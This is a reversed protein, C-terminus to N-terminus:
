KLNIKSGLYLSYEHTIDNDYGGNSTMTMEGFVPHNNVIYDQRAHSMEHILTCIVSYYSLM